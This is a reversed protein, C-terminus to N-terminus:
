EGEKAVKQFIMVRDNNGLDKIPEKTILELQCGEKLEKWLEIIKKGQDYGIEILVYGGKKLYQKANELIAKYFM